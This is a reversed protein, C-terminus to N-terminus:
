DRDLRWEVKSKEVCMQVRVGCVRACAPIVGFSRGSSTPNRTSSAGFPGYTTM